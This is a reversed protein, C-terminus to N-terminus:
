GSRLIAMADKAVAQLRRKLDAELQVLISASLSGIKAEGPDLGSSDTSVEIRARGRADEFRKSLLEVLRVVRNLENLILQARM